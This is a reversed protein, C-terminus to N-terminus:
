EAFFQLFVPTLPSFYISAVHLMWCHHTWKCPAKLTLSISGIFRLFTYIPRWRPPQEYTGTHKNWKRLEWIHNIEYVNSVNWRKWPIMHVDTAEYSLQNSRLVPIALDRTWIGNFDQIIKLSRVCDGLNRSLQSSWEENSKMEATRM